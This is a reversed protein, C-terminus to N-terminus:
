EIKTTETMFEGLYTDRWPDGSSTPSLLLYSFPKIKPTFVSESLRKLNNAESKNGKRINYLFHTSSCKVRM